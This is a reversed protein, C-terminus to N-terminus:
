RHNLSTIPDKLNIRKFSCEARKLDMTIKSRGDLKM